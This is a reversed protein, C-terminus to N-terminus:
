RSGAPPRHRRWWGAQGRVGEVRKHTLEPNSDTNDQQKYKRQSASIRPTTHRQAAPGYSRQHIWCREEKLDRACGVDDQGADVDENSDIATHGGEDQLKETAIYTYHGIPNIRIASCM